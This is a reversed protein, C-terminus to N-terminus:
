PQLMADIGTAAAGICRKLGEPGRGGGSIIPNRQPKLNPDSFEVNCNLPTISFRIEPDLPRCASLAFTIALLGLYGKKM